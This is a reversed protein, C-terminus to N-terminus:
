PRADGSSKEGGPVPAVGEAFYHSHFVEDTLPDELYPVFSDANPHRAIRLVSAARLLLDNRAVDGLRDIRGRLRAEDALLIPMVAPLDLKKFRADFTVASGPIDGDVAYPFRDFEGAFRRAPEVAGRELLALCLLSALRPKMASDPERRVLEVAREYEECEVWAVVGVTPDRRILNELHTEIMLAAGERDALRHKAAAVNVVARLM